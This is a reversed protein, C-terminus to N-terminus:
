SFTMVVGARQARQTAGTLVRHLRPHLHQVLQTRVQLQCKRCLSGRRWAPAPDSVDSASPKSLQASPRRFSGWREWARSMPCAIWPLRARRSHSNYGGHRGVCGVRTTRLSMLWAVAGVYEAYGYDVLAKKAALQRGTLGHDALSLSFAANSSNEKATLILYRLATVFSPEAEGAPLAAKSLPYGDPGNVIRGRSDLMVAAGPEGLEALAAALPEWLGGPIAATPQFAVDSLLEHTTVLISALQRVEVADM